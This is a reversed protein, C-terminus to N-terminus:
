CYKSVIRLCWGTYGHGPRVLRSPCDRVEGTNSLPKPDKLSPWTRNNPIIGLIRKSEVPLPQPTVSESATLDEFSAQQGFSPSPWWASAFLVLSAIIGNTM